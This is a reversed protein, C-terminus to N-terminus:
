IPLPIIQICFACSSGKLKKIFLVIKSISPVTSFQVIYLWIWIFLFRVGMLCFIAWYEGRDEQFLFLGNTKFRWQLHTKLISLIASYPRQLIVSSQLFFFFYYLFQTNWIAANEANLAVNTLTQHKQLVGQFRNCGTSPMGPLSPSHPGLLLPRHMSLPSPSIAPSM